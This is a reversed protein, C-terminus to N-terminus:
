TQNRGRAKLANNRAFAATAAAFLEAYHGEPVEASRNGIGTCAPDVRFNLNGDLDQELSFPYFQCILPRVHYISCLGNRLFVCKGADKIMEYEYPTVTDNSVAFQDRQKGTAAEIRRIDDELM